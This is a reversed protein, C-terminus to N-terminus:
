MYQEQGRAFTNKVTYPIHWLTAFKPFSMVVEFKTISTVNHNMAYWGLIGRVRSSRLTM